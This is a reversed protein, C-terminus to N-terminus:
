QVKIAADRVIKGRLEIDNKLREALQEPRDGVVTMGLARLKSKVEAVNLARVLEANLRKVIDAPTGAPAFFALWASFEFGPLTEAVTPINPDIDVRRKEGIAIVKITGRGAHPVLAALTAIGMKIHGGVLDTMAPGGGKYPVHMLEIKARQNLLEGAIHMPSGTGATGFFLKRPNKRAYAILEPVSNVGLSPHVAIGIAADVATTIPALDRVPDFGMDKYFHSNLTMVADTTLLIRYGDPAAAAVSASGVNGAAGSRHEVVVPQGLGAVLETQVLRAVNDTSAGPPYPTVIVVPRNPYGQAVAVLPALLVALLVRRFMTSAMSTALTYEIIGRHLKM